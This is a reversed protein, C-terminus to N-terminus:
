SRLTYPGIPESDNALMVYALAATVHTIWFLIYGALMLGELKGRKKSKWSRFGSKKWGKYKYLHQEYTETMSPHSPGDLWSAAAPDGLIDKVAKEYRNWQHDTSEDYTMQIQPGHLLYERVSRYERGRLRRSQRLSRMGLIM